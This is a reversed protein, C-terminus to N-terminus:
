GAGTCNIRLLASFQICLATLECSILNEAECFNSFKEDAIKRRTRSILSDSIETRDTVLINFFVGLKRAPLVESRGEGTEARCKGRASVVGGDVARRM